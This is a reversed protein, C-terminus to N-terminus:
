CHFYNNILVTVTMNYTYNFIQMIKYLFKITVQNGLIEKNQQPKRNTLKTKNLSILAM